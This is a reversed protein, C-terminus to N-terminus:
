REPSCYYLTVKTILSRCLTTIGVSVVSFCSALYVLVVRDQPTFCIVLQQIVVGTIAILALIDVCTFVDFERVVDGITMDHLKLRQSMFPIILYQALIGMVGFISVYLGYTEADWSFQKRCYGLPYSQHNKSYPISRFYLYMTPGKGYYLFVELLFALGTVIIYTRM